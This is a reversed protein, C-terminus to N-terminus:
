NMKEKVAELRSNFENVSKKIKTIKNELLLIHIQNKKVAESKQSCTESQEKIKKLTYFSSIKFDTDLLESIQIGM